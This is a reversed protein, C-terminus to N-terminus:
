WPFVELCWSWFLCMSVDEKNKINTFIYVSQTPSLVMCTLLFILIKM